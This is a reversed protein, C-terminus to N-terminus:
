LSKRLLYGGPYMLLDCYNGPLDSNTTCLKYYLLFFLLCRLTGIYLNAYVDYSRLSGGVSGALEACESRMEVFFM